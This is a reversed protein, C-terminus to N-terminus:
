VRSMLNTKTSIPYPPDQAKQSAVSSSKGEPGLAEVRQVRAGQKGPCLGKSEPVLDREAVQTGFPPSRKWGMIQVEPAGKGWKTKGPPATLGRMENKYMHGPDGQTNRPRQSTRCNVWATCHCCALSCPCCHPNSLCCRWTCNQSMNRPQRM